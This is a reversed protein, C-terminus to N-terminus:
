YFKKILVKDVDIRYARYNRYVLFACRIGAPINHLKGQTSYAGFKFGRQVLDDIWFVSGNKDDLTFGDLIALNTKMNEAWVPDTEPLLEVPGGQSLIVVPEAVEKKVALMLEAQKEHKRKTNYHTDACQDSCYDKGRHSVMHPKQCGPCIRYRDSAPDLKFVSKM